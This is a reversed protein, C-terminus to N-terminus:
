TGAKVAALGRYQRAIQLIWDRDSYGDPQRLWSRGPFAVPGAPGAALWRAVRQAQEVPTAEAPGPPDPAPDPSGGAGQRALTAELYLADSILSLREAVRFVLPGRPRVGIGVEPHRREMEQQLPAILRMERHAGAWDELSPLLSGAAVMSLACMLLAAGTGVGALPGASAARILFYAAAAVILAIGATFVLLARGRRTPNSLRVGVWSVLTMVLLVYLLPTLWAASADLNRTLYERPTMEPQPEAGLFLALSLAAIVAAVGYQTAALLRTHGASRNTAVSTIMVCSGAASAILAVQSLGISINPRGVATDILRTLPPWNLAALVALSALAVIMASSVVSQRNVLAWGIRMGTALALLGAIVWIIM